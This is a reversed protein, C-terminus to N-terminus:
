LRQKLLTNAFHPNPDIKALYYHSAPNTRLEVCIIYKLEIWGFFYFVCYTCKFYQLSIILVTFFTKKITGTYINILCNLIDRGDFDDNFDRKRAILGRGEKKSKDNPLLVIVLFRRQSYGGCKVGFREFM